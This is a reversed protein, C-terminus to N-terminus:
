VGPQVSLESVDGPEVPSLYRVLSFGLRAQSLPKLSLLARALWCLFPRVLHQLKLLLERWFGIRPSLPADDSRCWVWNPLSAPVSDPQGTPEAIVVGNVKPVSVRSPSLSGSNENVSIYSCCPNQKLRACGPLQDPRYRQISGALSLHISLVGSM